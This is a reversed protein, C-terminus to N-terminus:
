YSNKAPQSKEKSAEVPLSLSNLLAVIQEYTLKNLDKPIPVGNATLKGEELLKTQEENLEIVLTQSEGPKM